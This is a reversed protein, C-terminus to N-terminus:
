RNAHFDYFINHYKVEHKLYYKYLDQLNISATAPTGLGNSATCTYVLNTAKTNPKLKSKFVKFKFDPNLSMASKHHPYSM